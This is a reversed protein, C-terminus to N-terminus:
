LLRYAKNNGLNLLYKKFDEPLYFEDLDLDKTRNKYLYRFIKLNANEMARIFLNNDRIHVDLGQEVLYKVINFHCNSTAWRAGLHNNANINAGNEVLIKVIDLYGYSAAYSFARNGHKRVNVGQKILEKVQDTNAERVADILASKLTERDNKTM